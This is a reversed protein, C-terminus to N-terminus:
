LRRNELNCENCWRGKKINNPTSKWEHGISCRLDLHDKASVYYNSTCVGGKSIAIEQIEKLYEFSRDTKYASTYEVKRTRYEEPLDRGAEKFCDAVFEELDVLKLLKDLQPIQVLLIGRENCKEVKYVDNKQTEEFRSVKRHMHPVMVYHQLGQHEFALKLEENYGDLELPYNNPGMLWKPKVSKFPAGFKDEFFATCLRESLGQSCKKCWSGSKVNTTSMEFTHKNFCEWKLKDHAGVYETSLCKGGFKHALKQVDEINCRKKLGKKANACKECWKGSLVVNYYLASFKHGESCEFNMKSKADIYKSSTCIGNNDLAAKQARKLGEENSLSHACKRCWSGDKVIPPFTEWEHGQACRFKLKSRVNLYESSLCEGGNEIAIDQLLRLQIEQKNNM